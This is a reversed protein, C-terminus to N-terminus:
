LEKTKKAAAKRAAVKFADAGRFRDRVQAWRKTSNRETSYSSDTNDLPHLNLDRRATVSKFDTKVQIYCLVYLNSKCNIKNVSGKECPQLFQKRTQKNYVSIYTCYM